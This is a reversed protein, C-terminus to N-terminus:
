TIRRYKIADIAAPDAGHARALAALEDVKTQLADTTRVQYGLTEQADEADEEAARKEVKVQVVREAIAQDHRARLRKDRHCTADDGDDDHTLDVFPGEYRSLRRKLSAVESKLSAYDIPLQIWLSPEDSAPLYHSYNRRKRDLYYMELEDTTRSICQGVYWKDKIRFQCIEGVDPWRDAPEFHLASSLAPILAADCRRRGGARQSIGLDVASRPQPTSPTAAERVSYVGTIEIMARNVTDPVTSGDVVDAKELSLSELKRTSPTRTRKAAPAEDAPAAARPETPPSEVVAEHTAERERKRDDERLPSPAEDTPADARPETSSPPPGSTRGSAAGPPGCRVDDDQSVGDSSPALDDEMGEDARSAEPSPPMWATTLAIYRAEFQKHSPHLLGQILDANSEPYMAIAHARCPHYTVYTHGECQLMIATRSDAARRATFKKADAHLLADLARRDLNPFKRLAARRTEFPLWDSSGVERVELSPPPAPAENESYRAEFQNLSEHLLGTLHNQALDEFEALADPELHSEHIEIDDEDADARSLRSARAERTATEDQATQM